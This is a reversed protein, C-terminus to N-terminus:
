KTYKSLQLDNFFENKEIVEKFTGFQKIQTLGYFCAKHSVTNFVDLIVEEKLKFENSCIPCRVELVGM